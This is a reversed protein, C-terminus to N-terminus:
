KGNNREVLRDLKDAMRRLEIRIEAVTSQVANASQASSFEVVSVRKDLSFYSALVAAIAVTIAVLDGVGVEKNLRWGGRTKGSEEM